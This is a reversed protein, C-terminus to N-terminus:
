RWLPLIHIKNKLTNAWAQLRGGTGIGAVFFDIQGNTDTWIEPGTTKKHAQPNAPNIFQGAIFSNPIQAALEDAKEEAGQMGKAADTLVVQAGYAKILNRREISMSEPM